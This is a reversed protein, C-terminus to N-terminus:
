ESILEPTVRPYGLGDAICVVARRDNDLVNAAPGLTGAPDTVLLTACDVDGQVPLLRSYKTAGDRRDLSM